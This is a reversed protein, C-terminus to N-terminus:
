NEDVIGIASISVTRTGDVDHTITITGSESPVGLRKSFYIEDDTLDTSISIPSDLPIERDNETTRLAYNPGEYIVYSNELFKVGHASNNYGSSARGRASRITQAIQSSTENLQASIQLNSYIPLAATLVIITVGIVILLEIMTFGKKMTYFNDTYEVQSVM